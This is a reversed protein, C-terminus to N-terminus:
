LNSIIRCHKNKIQPQQLLFQKSYEATLCDGSFKERCFFCKDSTIDKKESQETKSKTKRPTPFFFIKPFSEFM